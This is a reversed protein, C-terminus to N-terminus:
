GKLQFNEAQQVTALPGVRSALSSVIRTEFQRFLNGMQADPIYGAPVELRASVHIDTRGSSGGRAGSAANAQGMAETLMRQTAEHNAVYGDGFMALEPRNHEGLRYNGGGTLDGGAARGQAGGFISGAVKVATDLWGSGEGGTNFQSFDAESLAQIIADRLGELAGRYFEREIWDGIDGGNLAYDLGDITADGVSEAWAQQQEPTWANGDPGIRLNPAGPLLNPNSDVDVAVVGRRFAEDQARKEAAVSRRMADYEALDRATAPDKGFKIYKETQDNVFKLLELREELVKNGEARAVALQQELALSELGEAKEADTLGKPGTRGGGSRVRGAPPTLDRAGGAAPRAREREALRQEVDFIQVELAGMDRIRQDNIFQANPTRAEGAMLDQIGLEDRKVRLDSLRKELGRQSKSDLDRWADAMDSMARALDAVLNLTTVIAPALDVFSQMLQVRIVKSVTEFEDKADAAREVLEADMVVGLAHAEQRLDAIADAGMQLAPLMPSLGLKEAIAAQEAENSLESIRKTVEGLADETSAFGKLDSASLGLAEFPKLAGKSMEARAAGFKERFSELAKAADEEDKGVSQMVFRYEQLADTTVGLAKATGSLEDAYDMAQRAQEVAMVAGALASTAGLAAVSMLGLARGALGAQGAMGGVSGQMDKAGQNVTNIGPAAVRTGTALEAFMKKGSDAIDDFGRKVVEDGELGVRIGVGKRDSGAM